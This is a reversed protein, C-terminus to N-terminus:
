TVLPQHNAGFLALHLTRHIIRKAESASLQSSTLGVMVSFFVHGMLEAIESRQRIEGEPIAVSIYAEMLEPWLLGSRADGSPAAMAAVGAQALNIDALTTDIMLDFVAQLREQPTDGVPPAASLTQILQLSRQRSVEAILHDKSSFYRYVTALGVGALEAVARMTVASYGGESALKEAAECLRLLRGQQLPTLPKDGWLTDINKILVQSEMGQM